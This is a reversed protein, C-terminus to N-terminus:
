DGDNGDTGDGTLEIRDRLPGAGRRRALEVLGLESFGTARIFAPDDALADLLAALVDAEDDPDDMHIFDIVTLGGLNRLRLQCAIEEAAELNTARVTAAHGSRGTNRATNVDIATLAHTTEIVISGGCPLGIEPELADLIDDEIGYSEFATDPGSWSEVRSELGPLYAAFFARADEADRKSDVIVRRLGGHARDRLAKILGSEEGHLRCPVAVNGLRESSRMGNRACGNPM